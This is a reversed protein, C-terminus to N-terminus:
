DTGSILADVGNNVWRAEVCIRSSGLYSGDSTVWSDLCEKRVGHGAGSRYVDAIVSSDPIRINPFIM